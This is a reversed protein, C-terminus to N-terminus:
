LAEYLPDDDSSDSALARYTSFSSTVKKRPPLGPSLSGLAKAQLDSTRSSYKVKKKPSFFRTPSRSADAKDEESLFAVSAYGDDNIPVPLNYTAQDGFDREAVRLMRKTDAGIGLPEM